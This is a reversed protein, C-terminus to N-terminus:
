LAHVLGLSSLRLVFLETFSWSTNSVFPVARAKSIDGAVVVAEGGALKIEDAM